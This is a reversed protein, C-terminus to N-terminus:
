VYGFNYGGLGVNDNEYRLVQADKSSTLTASYASAVLLTLVIFQFLINIIVIVDTPTYVFM